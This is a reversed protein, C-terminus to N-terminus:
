RMYPEVSKGKGAEGRKGFEKSNNSEKILLDGIAKSVAFHSNILM